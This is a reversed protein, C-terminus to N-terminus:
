PGARDKGAAPLANLAKALSIDTELGELPNAPPFAGLRRAHDYMAEVLRLNQHFDAPQNLVTQAEWREWVAPDRIMGDSKAQPSKGCFNL